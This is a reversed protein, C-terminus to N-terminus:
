NVILKGTSIIQSGKLIQYLYIGSKYNSCDVRLSKFTGYLSKQDLLQGSSDYVRYELKDTTALNFNVWYYDYAPNPSVYISKYNELNDLGNSLSDCVSGIIPGLDYNVSNPTSLANYSPLTIQNQILNCGAGAIDPNNIVHMKDTGGYTTIYIKNDSALDEMFFYTAFPSYLTDWTAVTDISSFIPSAWTDFQFVNVNTCVYLYRGSASFAAGFAAYSTPVNILEKVSFEGTCRDFNLLDLNNDISVTAYQDGLPDFCSMGAPDLTIVRGINQQSVIMTDPTVLVKYYLDSYYRHMIVWWDRGNAHKCSTIRGWTLTDDIISITKKGSVIDGLGGNINMDVLSYWLHLPQNELQGNATFEEQNVHFILYQDSHEPRPLILASQSGSSGYSTDASLSPNYGFSNQMMGYNSNAIYNGNTFMLISGSTDCISANTIFFSMYHYVSSTDFSGSNFDVKIKPFSPNNDGGLMWINTRKQAFLLTSIFLLYIGVLAKM